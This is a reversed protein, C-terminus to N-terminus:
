KLLFNHFSELVFRNAGTIHASSSKERLFIFCKLTPNYPVIRSICLMRLYKGSFLHIYIDQVEEEHTCYKQTSTSVAHDSNTVSHLIDYVCYPHVGRIYQLNSVCNKM